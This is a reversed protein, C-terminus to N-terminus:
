VNNARKLHPRRQILQLLVIYLELRYPFVLFYIVVVVLVSPLRTPACQPPRKITYQLATYCKVYTFVESSIGTVRDDIVWVSSAPQLFSWRSDIKGMCIKFGGM